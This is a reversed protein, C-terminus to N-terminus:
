ISKLKNLPARDPYYLCFVVIVAQLQLRPPQSDERRACVFDSLLEVGSIDRPLWCDYMLEWAKLLAFEVYTDNGDCASAM